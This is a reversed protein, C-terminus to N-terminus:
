TVELHSLSPGLSMGGWSIQRIPASGVTTGRVCSQPRQPVCAGGRMAVCPRPPHTHTQSPRVATQLALVTVHHLRPVTRTEEAPLTRGFTTGGGAPLSPPLFRLHPSLRFWSLSTWSWLVRSLKMEAGVQALQVQRRKFAEIPDDELAYNELVTRVDEM